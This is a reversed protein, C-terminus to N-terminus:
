LRSSDVWNEPNELNPEHSEIEEHQAYAREWATEDGVRFAHFIWGEERAHERGKTEEEPSSKRVWMVRLLKGDRRKTLIIQKPTYLPLGFPKGDETIRDAQYEDFKLVKYPGNKPSGPPGTVGFEEFAKRYYDENLPHVYGAHKFVEHGNGLGPISVYFHPM